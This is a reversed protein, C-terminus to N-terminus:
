PAAAQAVLGPEFRIEPAPPDDDVKEASSSRDLRWVGTKGSIPCTGQLSSPDKLSAPTEVSPAHAAVLSALGSVWWKSSNVCPVVLLEEGGAERFEEQGGIGLEELTELCDVTFSPATVALRRVGRKALSVFAEDTYPQIWPVTDRLTLRSQFAVSWRGSGLGLASALRRATDYCQARYCNKNDKTIQCTCAEDCRTGGRHAADCQATPLGHFSFLTHDVNCGQPGIAKGIELAQAALFATERYFPPVVSFSPAIFLDAAHKYATSVCTGVTGSAYQPFMPVLVIQDIGEENFQSLVDRTFPASYQFCMRVVFQDGLQKQLGEVLDQSHFLLPSGREEDWIRKYSDASKQPRTGLLVQLVLFKLFPPELELVRDDGLFRSLYDRVDDVATSAPTGINMLLVGVKSDSDASSRVLGAKESVTKGAAIASRPVSEAGVAASRRAIATLEEARCRSTAVATPGPGVPRRRSRRHVVAGVGISVGALAGWSRPAGDRSVQAPGPGIQHSEVIPFSRVDQLVPSATSAAVHGGIFAAMM